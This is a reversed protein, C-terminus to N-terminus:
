KDWFSVLGFQVWTTAQAQPGPQRGKQTRPHGSYTGLLRVGRQRSQRYTGTNLRWGARGGATGEKTGGVGAASARWQSAQGQGVRLGKVGAETLGSILGKRTAEPVTPQESALGTTLGGCGREM